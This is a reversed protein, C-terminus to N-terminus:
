MEKTLRLRPTRTTLVVKTGDSFEFTQRTTTYDSDATLTDALNRLAEQARSPARNNIAM